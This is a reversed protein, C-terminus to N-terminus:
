LDSISSSQDDLDARAADVDTDIATMRTVFESRLQQLWGKLVEDSMSGNSAQRLQEELGLVLKRRRAHVISNSIQKKQWNREELQRAVNEAHRLVDAPFPLVKALKLGYHEEEVIGQTLKYMMAISEEQTANVALHLNVVGEREALIRALERFHTAFYVLAHGDTLAEAIALAIALGDRSSTGRALEDVIAMSHEDINGLIHAMEQMEASFTSMNAQVSSDVSVRSFLQRIIRISAYTAPVFCGIQAMITLLAVSRIYTSKGSMNCGTVIQFRSTTTAYVDNPIFRTSQIKGRIPHRAAKIALTDTIQPRVYESSTVLHAFSALMDLMAISECIKSLAAVHMRVADTLERITRDSMLLVEVHADSIKKNSKVLDLTQCEVYKKRRFVHIFVPPLTRTELEDAPLRIYNQRTNDYCCELALEHEDKLAQIHQYADLMAEKYTQRAVDLLGNVGSKVAYIRQNRLDLPKNAHVTEESIVQDILSQAQETNDSHCLERIQVLISSTCGLLAEYVPHVSTIFHKLALINNVAQEIHTPTLHVPVVIFSTLVKEVDLMKKLAGRVAFFTDEKTSLEQLADYRLELAEPDTLPQLMNNKLLRAGMRTLTSNLLGFLSDKSKHDQLNRVLELAHITGVIILMTGESAEYRFRISHYPFTTSM